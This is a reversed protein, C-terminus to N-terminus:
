CFCSIFRLPLEKPIAIPGGRNEVRSFRCSNRSRHQGHRRHSFPSRNVVHACVSWMTSLMALLLSKHLSLDFCTCNYDSQSMSNFIAVRPRAVRLAFRLIALREFFCALSPPGALGALISWFRGEGRETRAINKIKSQNSRTVDLSRSRSPSYSRRAKGAQSSLQRSSQDMNPFIELSFLSSRWIFSDHTVYTVDIISTVRCSFWGGVCAAIVM